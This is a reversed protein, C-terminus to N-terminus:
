PAGIEFFGFCEDKTLETYEEDEIEDEDFSSEIMYEDKEDLDAFRVGTTSAAMSCQGHDAYVRVTLEPDVKQLEEILEKVKM